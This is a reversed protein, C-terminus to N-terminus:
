KQSKLGHGTFISVIVTERPVRTCIQAAGAAAVAATPEVYIGRRHLLRLMDVLDKESVTLFEGGSDGVVRLMQEGRIPNAIAVGEALSPLKDIREPKTRGRIFAAALPACSETQVAIIKPMRKIVKHHLLESFGIYAGLLLTGNGAPTVFIDPAQWELQECIEYAITKTGQFFFPNWSHSAYYCNAAAELAAKATAERDGPIKILNAGAAQIQALKSPLTKEPVYIDCAIGAAAGYAAVAAGANGSSDEVVRDIGLEKVTSMMVSAGRDKFSGTPFLYDLKFHVARGHLPVTIMPTFGEGFSVISERNRTPIVARYRWMGQARADIMDPDFDFDNVIDLLGGCACRWLPDSAPYQAGCKSCVLTVM